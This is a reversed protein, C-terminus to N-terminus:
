RLHLIAKEVIDCDCGLQLPLPGYKELKEKGMHPLKYNKGGFEKTVEIMCQQLTLFVRNLSQSPLDHIAKEIANVLDDVTSPAEQHQLSQIVRFFGLNLVNMDLSNPPQCSLNINFGDSSAVELFEPDNPDIHPKGNDQQIFIVDKTGHPWKARIALLVKEILCSRIM